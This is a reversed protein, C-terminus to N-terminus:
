DIIIQRTPNGDIDCFFHIGIEGCEVIAEVCGFFDKTIGFRERFSVSEQKVVKVRIVGHGDEPVVGISVVFDGFEQNLIRPSVDICM